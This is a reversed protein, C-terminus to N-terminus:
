EQGPEVTEEDIRMRADVIRFHDGEPYTLLPNIDLEAIEPHQLAITSLTALYTRLRVLDIPKKGRAGMLLPACRLETIMEEIDNGSLPAFRMSMDKFVEVYIGGLGLVVLTGLGPERKLGLLLELGDPEAMAVALAGDIKAHPARETVAAILQDFAEGAKSPEINILVGGVDSKHIIDPSVIKLAINRGFQTAFTQAEESTTVVTSELFPFHYAKLFATTLVENLQTLQQDKATSLLAAAEDHNPEALPPLPLTQATEKWHHVQALAGLARAAREPSLYNPINASRLAAIGKAVLTKGSFVTVLPLKPHATRIKAIAQATALDETMTQPTLIVLLLDTHPDNAIIHLAQAYRDALADGLVDIPNNCNAAPPLIEKLKTVTDESLTALTLGHEICADTALVGLGGANTVIAVRNGQPLPNQAFAGLLDLLDQFNNARTIRAQRFLASYAADSGALAGTHSSSAATGATTTGSKLAIVPKGKQLLEHGLTIIKPAHRLGETYFGIVQSAEDDRFHNLLVAEDLTAKNGISAFTSFGLEGKTLDLFASTLAGSQSFFAISGDTPLTSAFSANLFLHPRIFGLCNPGLLELHYEKAIHVIEQELARGAEGTERFGASIIVAARALHEGAERLVQPVIAAPVIIMVLEVSTPLASLSPYCPKGFLEGGKPNVFYVDGRFDSKAINKAVDNGVSGPRTSAGVVAISKPSFLTHLSM